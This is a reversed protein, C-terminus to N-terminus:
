PLDLGLDEVYNKTHRNEDDLEKQFEEMRVLLRKENNAEALQRAKILFKHARRFRYMLKLKVAFNYCAHAEEGGQKGLEFEHIAKQYFYICKSNAESIKRRSQSNFLIFKDLNWRRIFYINAIKYKIKGGSMLDLQHVLFRASYLDGLGMLIHGRFYHNDNLELSRLVLSENGQIEKEIKEREHTIANFEDKERELAFGLWNFVNASLKLNKQRYIMFNLKTLLLNCKQILLYAEADNKGIIQAMKLGEETIELLRKNESFNDLVVFLGLIADLKIRLDNSQYLRWLIESAKSSDNSAILDRAYKLDQYESM